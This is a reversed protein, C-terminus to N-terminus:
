TYQKALHGICCVQIEQVDRMNADLEARLTEMSKEHKENMLETELQSKRVYQEDLQRIKERDNDTRKTRAAKRLEAVQVKHEAKLRKPLQRKELLQQQRLEEIQFQDRRSQLEVEQCIFSTLLSWSYFM